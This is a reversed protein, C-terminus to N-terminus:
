RRLTTFDHLYQDFSNNEGRCKLFTNCLEILSGISNAGLGKFWVFVYGLLSKSFLRMTVDEHVIEFQDIFNNFAEV